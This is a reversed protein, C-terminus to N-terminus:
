LEEPENDEDDEAEEADFGLFVDLFATPSFFYNSDSLVKDEIYDLGWNIYENMTTM